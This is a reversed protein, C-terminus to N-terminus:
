PAEAERQVDGAAVRGHVAALRTLVSSLPAASGDASSLAALALEFSELVEDVCRKTIQAQDYGLKLLMSGSPQENAWLSVGPMLFPDAPLEFRECRIGGLELTEADQRAMDFYARPRRPTRTDGALHEEVIRAPVAAIESARAMARRIRSMMEPAGLVWDPDVRICGLSSMWGILRATDPDDRNAMPVVLGLPGPHRVPELALLYAVLMVQFLTSGHKAAWEGAAAVLPQPVERRAQGLSSAGGDGSTTLRLPPILPHGPPIHAQATRVAEGTAVDRQWAAWDYYSPRPPTSRTGASEGPGYADALESLLVPISERDFLLHDFCLSLVDGCAGYRLLLGSWPPSSAPDFVSRAHAQLRANRRIETCISADEVTLVVEPASRVEVTDGGTFVSRLVTHGGAVRELARRLRELSLPASSAVTLAINDCLRKKADRVADADMALRIAQNHSVRARGTAPLVPVLGETRNPRSTLLLETHFDALVPAELLMAFTAPLGWRRRIRSIVRAATLSDGGIAFFNSTPEPDTDPLAERWLGEIDYLEPLDPRTM